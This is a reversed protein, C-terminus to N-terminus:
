GALQSCSGRKTASAASTATVPKAQVNGRELADFHVRDKLAGCILSQKLSLARQKAPLQRKGLLREEPSVVVLSGKVRFM